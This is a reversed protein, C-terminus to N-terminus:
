KSKQEAERRKRDIEEQSDNWNVEFTLGTDRNTVQVTAVPPTPNLKISSLLEGNDLHVVAGLKCTLHEIEDQLVRVITSLRSTEKELEDVKGSLERVTIRKWM